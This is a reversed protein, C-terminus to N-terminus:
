PKEPFFRGSVPQPGNGDWSVNPALWSADFLAGRAKQASYNGVQLQGPRYRKTYKIEGGFFTASMKHAEDCVM